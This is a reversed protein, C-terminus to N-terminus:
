KNMTVFYDLVSKLNPTDGHRVHTPTQGRCMYSYTDATGTDADHEFGHKYEHKM